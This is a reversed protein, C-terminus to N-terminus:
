DSIGERHITLYSEEAESCYEVSAATRANRDLILVEASFIEGAMDDASGIRLAVTGRYALSQNNLPFIRMIHDLSGIHLKDQGDPESIIGFLLDDDWDGARASSVEIFEAVLAVEIAAADGGILDISPCAALEDVGPFM